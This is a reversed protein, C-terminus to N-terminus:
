FEQIIELDPLFKRSKRHKENGRHEILTYLLIFKNLSEFVIASYSHKLLVNRITSRGEGVLWGTGKTWKWLAAFDCFQVHQFLVRPIMLDLRGALASERCYTACSLKWAPRSYRWLFSWLTESCGTGASLWECLLPTKWQTQISRGTNWNTGMDGRGTMAHWQFSDPGM